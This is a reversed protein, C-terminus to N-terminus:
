PGKWRTASGTPSQLILEDGFYNLVFGTYVRTTEASESFSYAGSATVVTVANVETNASLKKAEKTTLSARSVVYLNNIYILKSGPNDDLAKRIRDRESQPLNLYQVTLTKKPDEPKPIVGFGELTWEVQYISSNSVSGALAGYLPVSVKASSSSTGSIETKDT